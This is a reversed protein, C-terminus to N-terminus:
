SFTFASLFFASIKSECFLIFSFIRIFVARKFLFVIICADISFISNVFLYFIIIEIKQDFESTNKRHVTTYVNIQFESKDNEGEDFFQITEKEDKKIRLFTVKKVRKCKKKCCKESKM